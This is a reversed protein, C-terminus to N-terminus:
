SRELVAKFKVTILYAFLAFVAICGESGWVNLHVGAQRMIPITIDILTHFLLAYLFYIKKEYKVAYLVLMTMGVHATVVLIRELGGALFLYSPINAVQDVSQGTMLGFLLQLYNVGVILIAEAGGHGLGFVVGNEWSLKDKLFFRLGLYRGTEEFVGASFGLVIFYLVPMSYTFLIFDTSNELQKLLPIRLLPQSVTFVIAGVLFAKWSAKYKKVMIAAIVAPVVICILASMSIFLKTFCLGMM